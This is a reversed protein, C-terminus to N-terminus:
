ENVVKKKKKEKPKKENELAINYKKKAESLEKDLKVIKCKIRESLKM